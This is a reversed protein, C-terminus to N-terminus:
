KDDDMDDLDIFQFDDEFDDNEDSLIDYELEPNDVITDIDTEPSDEKIDEIITDQDDDLFAGIDVKYDIDDPNSGDNENEVDDTNSGDDEDEEDESDTGDDEDQEDGTLNPNKANDEDIFDNDDVDDRRCIIVILAVALLVAAIAAIIAFIKWANSTKSLEAVNNGDTGAASVAYYRSVTGEVCDYQYWHPEGDNNLGYFLYYSDNNAPVLVDVKKDNITAISKNFGEPWEMGDTIKLITYTYQPLEITSLEYFTNLTTDYVFFAEAGGEAKVLYMVMLGSKENKAATVAIGNIAYKVNEYGSPLQSLDFQSEVVYKEGNITVTPLGDSDVVPASTTTEKETVTAAVTTAETAATTERVTSITYRKTTGNEATVDIYTKNNGPDLNAYKVSVKAKADATKADIILKTVDSNVKTSYSTTEPSFAPTLTGPSIELSSLTADSSALPASIKVSGSTSTVELEDGYDPNMSGIKANVVSLTSTGAQLPQFVLQFTSNENSLIRVTEGGHTDFGSVPKLIAADFQITLDVIAIKNDEETPTVTVTVTVNNEESDGVTGSTSSISVNAGGAAMADEENLGFSAIIVLITIAVVQCAKLANRKILERISM